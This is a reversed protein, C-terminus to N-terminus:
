EVRVPGTPAVDPEVMPVDDLRALDARLGSVTPDGTPSPDHDRGQHVRVSVERVPYPLLFGRVFRDFSQDRARLAELEPQQALGCRGPLSARDPPREALHDAAADGRDDIKALLAAPADLEQPLGGFSDRDPHDRQASRQVPRDLHGLDVTEQLDRVPDPQARDGLDRDLCTLHDRLPAAVM